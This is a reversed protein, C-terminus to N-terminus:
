KKSKFVKLFADYPKAYNGSSFLERFDKDIAKITDLNLGGTMIRHSYEHCIIFLNSLPNLENDKLGWPYGKGQPREHHQMVLDKVDQDMGELDDLIEVAKSPHEIVLKKETESLSKFNEDDLHCIKALREEKLAADQIIAALAFKTFTKPNGWPLENLCSIALYSTLTSLESIYNENKLFAKLFAPLATQERITKKAVEVTEDALELVEESVGLSSLAAHLNEVTSFQDTLSGVVGKGSAKSIGAIISKFCEKFDDKKVYFFRVGKSKIHDMVEEPVEDGRNVIKVFKNSGIKVFTDVLAEKSKFFYDISVKSYDSDVKPLNSELLGEIEEVFQKKILDRYCFSHGYSSFINKIEDKEEDGFLLNDELVIFKKKFSDDGFDNFEDSYDLIFTYDCIFLVESTEVQAETIFSKFNESLEVVTEFESEVFLAVMKFLEQGKDLVVVRVTDDKSM